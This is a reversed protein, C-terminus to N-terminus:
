FLFLKFYNCKYSFVWSDTIKDGIGAADTFQSPAYLTAPLAASRPDDVVVVRGQHWDVEDGREGLVFLGIERGCITGRQPGKHVFKDM